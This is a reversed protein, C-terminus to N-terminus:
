LPPVVPRGSLQPVVPRGSLQPEGPRRRTAAVRRAAAGRGPSGGGGWSVKFLRTENLHQFVDDLGLEPVTRPGWFPPEPVDEVRAEVASRTVDSADAAVPQHRVRAARRETELLEKRAAPDILRDVTELGEFADRCYLVGGAYPRDEIYTIDRGFERNIAAGGVLLPIALGRRDLERVVLPMQRSTSVLLASLGIADAKLEIARDVITNVMVQKGLDHM